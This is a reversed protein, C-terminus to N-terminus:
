GPIWKRLRREADPNLTGAALWVSSMAQNFTPNQRALRDLDDILVDGHEHVLDELPGAGVSAIGADDPATEILAVILHIADIGGTHIWERVTDAAACADAPEGLELAKRQWRDGQSLRLHDWWRACLEGVQRQDESM